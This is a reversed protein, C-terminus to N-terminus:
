RKIAGKLKALKKNLRKRKEFPYIYESLISNLDKDSILAEQLEQWFVPIQSNKTQQCEYYDKIPEHNFLEAYPKLKDICARGRDTFTAVMSIGGNNEAYKNHWYDGLRIDAVSKDRWPCEFCSKSYCFGHEFAIFYPDEDQSKCYRSANDTNYIYIERWGKEKYRFVTEFTGDTHMGKERLFALYKKYLNYSPVGHCILDVLLVNEKEGLLNKIGAIQCPTGFVVIDSNSDLVEQVGRAFDSQTYKSGQFISLRNESSESKVLVHKANHAISDFSCGYIDCGKGHMTRAIRYGAGGSSSKKLVETKSDAYSFLKANKIDISQEMNKYPCVKICKGCSICKDVVVESRYFGYKDLEVSIAGTPCVIKCSGCGCCLSEKEHINNKKLYSDSYAEIDAFADQLFMKSKDVEKKLERYVRKYDINRCLTSAEIKGNIVREELNFLQLINFIRSNQNNKDKKKFREFIFFPKKFIISFLMGHFSDTCVEHANKVLSLFDSPGIPDKICGERELDKFFVPIIKVEINLNESISKIKKWYTENKGLMYVLIYPKTNDAYDSAMDSWDKSDVLLTPDLVTEVHKGILDEIIKSGTEERTSIHEIKSTYEKIRNKVNIDDITPLGVSPAYAIKKYDDRVFDLFYHADFVSPAWIQDSGCVFADLEDNLSELEPMLEVPKTFLCNDDLFCNFKKEREVQEYRHYAHNNVRDIIREVGDEVIGKRHLFVPAKFNKYNVIFPTHGLEKIIKTLATAQLASGYNHYQFWTVIGIKM